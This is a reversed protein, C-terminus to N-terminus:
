GRGWKGVFFDEVADQWSRISFHLLPEIKKTSLVSRAPRIAARQFDKQTSKSIKKCKFPVQYKVMLDKVFCLLDYRSCFGGNVFHYIGSADLLCTTAAVIDDVYTPSSIQDTVFSCQEKQELLDVLSDILGYKGPGFVSATRIIVVSPLIELLKQEGILKTQGYRNVPNTKDEEVYAERKKGDFVYDTSIHILKLHHRKALLALNEVGHVNIREAENFLEGEAKDVQVIATCNVIHTPRHKLYFAEIMSPKLVDVEERASGIHSVNMGSMMAKGLLGAKGVIWVLM